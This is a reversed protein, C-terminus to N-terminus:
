RQGFKESFEREEVEAELVRHSVNLSSSPCLLLPWSLQFFGVLLLLIVEMLTSLVKVSCVCCGCHLKFAALKVLEAAGIQRFRASGRSASEFFFIFCIM